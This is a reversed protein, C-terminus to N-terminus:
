IPKELSPLLVNYVNIFNFLSGFFTLVSSVSNVFLSIMGKVKISYSCRLYNLYDKFYQYGKNSLKLFEMQYKILLLHFM